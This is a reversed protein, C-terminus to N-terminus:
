TQNRIQNNCKKINLNVSIQTDFRERESCENTPAPTNGNQYSINQINWRM